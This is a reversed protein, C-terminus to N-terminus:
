GNKAREDYNRNNTDIAKTIAGGLRNLFWQAEAPFDKGMANQAYFLAHEVGAWESNPCIVAKDEKLLKIQNEQIINM